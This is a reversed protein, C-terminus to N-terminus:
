CGECGEGGLLSRIKRGSEEIQELLARMSRHNRRIDWLTAITVLFLLAFYPMMHM